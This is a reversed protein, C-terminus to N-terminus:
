QITNLNIEILREGEPLGDFCLVPHSFVSQFMKTYLKFKFEEFLNPKESEVSSVRCMAVRLYAKLKIM